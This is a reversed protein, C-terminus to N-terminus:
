LSLNPWFHIFNYPCLTIQIHCEPASSLKTSLSNLSHTYTSLGIYGYIWIDTYSLSLPRDNNEAWINLGMYAVDATVRIGLDWVGLAYININSVDSTFVELILYKILDHDNKHM